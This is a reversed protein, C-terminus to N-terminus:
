SNPHLIVKIAGGKRERFTDIAEQFQSLPFSHTILPKLDVKGTALLSVARGVNARSEGRNTIIDKDNLALDHLDVTLPAHAIALMLIKGNRKTARVSLDLGVQSGSSEIAYDVGMGKTHDLIIQLPDQTSANICVSAGVQAGVDLRDQLIDSLFVKDAGLANAATVTALGLPGAGIVLVSEGAIYGGLNEFGYLVCGLNTVLSAEDFGVSDPIKYVTNIHNIVYQAYAGPTVHGNSRHGKAVNGYNLCSTYDGLRCNRCRGCGLHAEVTVRDGIKFEDVTEGLGVVTGAYEHGLITSGYPSQGPFPEEMMGLDSRCIACSEVRILVDAPGPSPLPLTKMELRNPGMLVVANMQAPLM